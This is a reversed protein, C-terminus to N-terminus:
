RYVMRAMLSSIQGQAQALNLRLDDYVFKHGADVARVLPAEAQHYAATLEARRTKDEVRKILNRALKMQERVVALSEYLARASEVRGARPAVEKPGHCAACKSALAKASLVRGDTEGHCTVCTPGERSGSRLVEAHRSRDFAVFPGAHCRGCTTSVNRRHVPSKPDNPGLIGRHALAPEFTGPNGGHCASCVVAARGHPSRDWELVHALGPAAPTAFHCDACGNKPAIQARSPSPGVLVLGASAAVGVLLTRTLIM